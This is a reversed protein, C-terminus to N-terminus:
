PHTAGGGVCRIFGYEVGTDSISFISYGIARLAEVADLSQRRTIGPFHHHFEVLIQTPRVAGRCLSEIVAYEGGEIDMKLVEIHDHGLEQMITELRRVQWEHPRADDVEGHQITSHSVHRRDKPEYFRM